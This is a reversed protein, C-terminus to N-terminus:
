KGRMKEIKDKFFVTLAKKERLQKDLAEALERKAGVADEMEEIKTRLNQIEYDLTLYNEKFTETDKQLMQNVEPSVSTFEGVAKLLQRYARKQSEYKRGDAEYDKKGYGDKIMPEFILERESPLCSVRPRLHREKAAAILAARSLSCETRWFIWKPPM